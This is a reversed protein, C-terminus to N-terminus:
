ESLPMRSGLLEVAAEYALQAPSKLDEEMGPNYGLIVKPDTAALDVALQRYTSGFNVDNLPSEDDVSSHELMMGGIGGSFTLAGGEFPLNFIANWDAKTTKGNQDGNNAVKIAFHIVKNVSEEFDAPVLPTATQVPALNTDDEQFWKDYVAKQKPTVRTVETNDFSNLLKSGGIASSSSSLSSTAAPTDVPTICFSAPTGTTRARKATPPALRDLTLDIFTYASNSVPKSEDDIAKQETYKLERQLVELESHLTNYKIMHKNDESTIRLVQILEMQKDIKWIHDKVEREMSNIIRDRLAAEQRRSFHENTSAIAALQLSQQTTIGREGSTDNERDKAAASTTAARASLRGNGGKKKGNPKDERMMLSSRYSEMKKPVIPGLLAFVMFGRFIPSPDENPVGDGADDANLEEVDDEEAENFVNETQLLKKMGKRVYVLYDEFSTGSPLIGNTCAKYPSDHRFVISLAKKCNRLVHRANALMQRGNLDARNTLAKSTLFQLTIGTGDKRGAVIHKDPLCHLEPKLVRVEGSQTASLAGTVIPVSAEYLGEFLGHGQLAQVSLSVDDPGNGLYENALFAEQARETMGGQLFMREYAVYSISAQLEKQTKSGGNLAPPAM